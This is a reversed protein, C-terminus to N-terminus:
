IHVNPAVGVIGFGNAAAAITGATHTGHGNDDTAAVEGPLPAGSLCNVSNADDVNQRLDPHRYDLGTDIDGVLVSPSGGTIAHAEPAHIQRMDWQLASFTDADTAPANPLSGPPPGAADTTQDSRLQTAFAATAAAGEVDVNNSVNAGFSPDASRAIAVGIADYSQVLTGGAAAIKRGASAPVSSGRYLVIYTQSSGAHAAVTATLPSFGAVLGVLALPVRLRSAMRARWSGISGTLM